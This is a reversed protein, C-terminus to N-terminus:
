LLTNGIRRSKHHLLTVHSAVARTFTPDDMLDIEELLQQLAVGVDEIHETIGVRKKWMGDAMPTEYLQLIIGINHAIERAADPLQEYDHSGNHVVSTRGKGAPVNYNLSPYVVEYSFDGTKIRDSRLNAALGNSKLKDIDSPPLGYWETEVYIKTPMQSKSNGWGLFVSASEQVGIPYPFLMKLNPVNIRIQHLSGTPNSIIPRVRVRYDSLGQVLEARFMQVIGTSLPYAQLM